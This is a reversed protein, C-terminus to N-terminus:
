VCFDKVECYGCRKSRAARPYKEEAIVSEVDKVIERLRRKSEADIEVELFRKGVLYIYGKKVCVGLNGEVLAAYATLQMKWAYSISQFKSLKVDVPYARGWEGSKKWKGVGEGEGVLILADLVGKLGLRASELYVNTQLEGGLQEAFKRLTDKVNEQVAKGEEMKPRAIRIGAVKMFYVKRPCYL